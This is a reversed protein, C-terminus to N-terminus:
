TEDEIACAISNGRDVANGGRADVGAELGSALVVSGHDDLEGRASRLEVSALAEVVVVVLGGDGAGNGTGEVDAGHGLLVANGDDEV